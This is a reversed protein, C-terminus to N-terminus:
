EVKRSDRKNTHNSGGGGGKVVNVGTRGERIEEEEMTTTRENERV